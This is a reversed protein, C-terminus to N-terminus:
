RHACRLLLTSCQEGISHYTSARHGIARLSVWAGAIFLVAVLAIIVGLSHEDLGGVDPLPLEPIGDIPPTDGPASPVDSEEGRGFLFAPRAILTVGFLSSVGAIKERLTFPEGITIAALVGTVLPALFSISTMEAIPLMELSVYLLLTSLWGCIGRALLVGRVGPPGM